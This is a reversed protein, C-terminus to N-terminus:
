LKTLLSIISKNLETSFVKDILTDFESETKVASINKSQTIEDVLNISPITIDWHQSREKGHFSMNGLLSGSPNINVGVKNNESSTYVEQEYELDVVM